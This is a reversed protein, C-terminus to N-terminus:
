FDLVRPAILGSRVCVQRARSAPLEPRDARDPDALFSRIMKRACASGRSVGHTTNPIISLQGKPFRGVAAKAVAPPCGPDIEAALFLTPIPSSVPQAEVPIPSASTM